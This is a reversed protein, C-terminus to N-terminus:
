ERGKDALSDTEDYLISRIISSLFGLSFGTLHILGDIGPIIFGTSLSLLVLSFFPIFRHPDTIVSAARIGLLIYILGSAGVSPTGSASLFAVLVAGAYLLPFFKCKMSGYAFYFGAMNISLHVISKHFVMYIFFTYAPAGSAYGVAPSDVPLCYMIVCIAIFLYKM